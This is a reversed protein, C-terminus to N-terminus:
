PLKLRLLCEEGRKKKAPALQAKDCLTSHRDLIGWDTGNVRWPSDRAKPQAACRAVAVRAAFQREFAKTRRYRIQRAIDAFVAVCV